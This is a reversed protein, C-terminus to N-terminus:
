LVAPVLSSEWDDILQDEILAPVEDDELDLHSTDSTSLSLLSATTPSKPTALYCAANTTASDGFWKRCVHINNCSDAHVCRAQLHRRCVKVEEAQRGLLRELGKTACIRARGLLVGGASSSSSSKSSCSGQQGTIMIDPGVECQVGEHEPCCKARRVQQYSAKTHIGKCNAGYRCGNAMHFPCLQVSAGKTSAHRGATSHTLHYAIVVNQEANPDWVNLAAVFNQRKAVVYAGEQAAAFVRLGGVLPNPLHLQNCSIGARCSGKHHLMCLFSQRKEKYDRRGVTDLALYSPVLYRAKNEPDHVLFTGADAVQRVVEAGDAQRQLLGVVTENVKTIIFTSERDKGRITHVTSMTTFFTTKILRFHLSLSPNLLFFIPNTPFVSPLPPSSPIFSLGM